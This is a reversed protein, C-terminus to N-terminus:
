PSVCRPCEVSEDVLKWLGTHTDSHDWVWIGDQGDMVMNLVRPLGTVATVWETQGDGARHALVHGEGGVQETRVAVYANNDQDVVMAFSRGFYGQGNVPSRLIARKTLRADGPQFTYLEPEDNMVLLTMHGEGDIRLGGIVHSPANCSGLERTDCDFVKTASSLDAPLEFIRSGNTAYIKGNPHLVASVPASSSGASPPTNPIEEWTSSGPVLRHLPRFGQESGAMGLLAGTPTKFVPMVRSGDGLVPVANFGDETIVRYRSVYAGPEGESVSAIVGVGPANRPLDMIINGTVDTRQVWVQTDEELSGKLKWLGKDLLNVYAHGDDTVALAGYDRGVPPFGINVAKLSDPNKGGGCGAAGLLLVAAVLRRASTPFCSSTLSM